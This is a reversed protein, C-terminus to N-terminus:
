FSFSYYRTKFDKKELLNIMVYKVTYFKGAFHSCAPTRGVVSCLQGNAESPIIRNVGSQLEYENWVLVLSSSPDFIQRPNAFNSSIESLNGGSGRFTLIKSYWNVQSLYGYFSTQTSVCMQQTQDFQCGLVVWMRDFYLLM